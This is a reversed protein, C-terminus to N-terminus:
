RRRPDPPDATTATRVLRMVESARAATPPGLVLGVRQGRWFVAANALGEPLGLGETLEGEFDCLVPVAPLLENLNDRVSQNPVFFPLGDLDALGYLRFSGKGRLLKVWDRIAEGTDRQDGAIIVTVREGGFVAATDHSNRRQDELKFSPVAAVSLGLLLVIAFGSTNV